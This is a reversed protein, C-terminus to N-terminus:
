INQMNYFYALNPSILVFIQKLILNYFTFTQYPLPQQHSRENGEREREREREREKFM